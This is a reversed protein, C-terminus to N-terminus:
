RRELAEGFAFAVVGGVAVGAWVNFALCAGVILAVAGVIQLAVALVPL